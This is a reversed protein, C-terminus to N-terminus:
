SDTPRNDRARERSNRYSTSPRPPKGGRIANLSRIFEDREHPKIDELDQQLSAITVGKPKKTADGLIVEVERALKLATKINDPGNELVRVRIEDKLGGLFITSMMLLQMKRVGMQVLSNAVEVMAAGRDANAGTFTMVEDPKVRYADSFADSVRHFFTQVKEENKQKLDQFSTCQTRASFKPAYAEGFKAKL